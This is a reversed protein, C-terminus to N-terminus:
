HEVNSHATSSHATSSHTTSAHATSAQTTSPHQTQALVFRDPEAVFAARCGPSCFYSTAGEFEVHLSSPIAAVTM